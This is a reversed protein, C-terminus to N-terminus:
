LQPPGSLGSPTAHKHGTLSILGSRVDDATVETTSGAGGVVIRGAVYRAGAEEAILDIRGRALSPLVYMADGGAPSLVLVGEDVDLPSFDLMTDGAREVLVHLWPTVVEGLRVRVRYPRSQVESVRGVRIMHALRRELDSVRRVLARLVEDQM